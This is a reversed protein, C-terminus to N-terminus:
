DEEEEMDYYEGGDDDDDGDEMDWTGNGDGTVCIGLGTKVGYAWKNHVMMIMM